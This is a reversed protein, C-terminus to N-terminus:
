TAIVPQRLITKTRSEGVRGPDNLYIEHHAGHPRLGADAIAAHLRRVTPTEQEYSGVHLIQASPGEAWHLPFVCGAFPRPQHDAIAAAVEDDTAADPVALLMRWSWVQDAKAETTEDATLEEPTFWFLAELMGIRHGTVGRGRLEFHLPYAIGFLAGIADTFGPSGPVADGDVALFRHEPVDVFRVRDRRASALARLDDSHDFPRTPALVTSM